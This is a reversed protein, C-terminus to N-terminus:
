SKGTHAYHVAKKFFISSFIPGFCLFYKRIKQTTNETEVHGITYRAKQNILLKFWSRKKLSRRCFWLLELSKPYETNDFSTIEDHLICSGFSHNRISSHLSLLQSKTATLARRFRHNQWTSHPSKRSLVQSETMYFALKKLSSVQSETIRSDRFIYPFLPTPGTIECSKHAAKQRIM